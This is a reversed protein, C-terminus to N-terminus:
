LNDLIQELNAKSLDAGSLDSHLFNAGKMDLGSMDAGRLDMESLDAGALSDADIAVLVDGTDKHKIEFM